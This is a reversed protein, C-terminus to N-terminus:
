IEEDELPTSAARDFRARNSPWFAYVLAALFIVAFYVMGWTQAFSSLTEYTM